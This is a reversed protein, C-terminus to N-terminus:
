ITKPDFYLVWRLGVEIVSFLTWVFVVADLHTGNCTPLLVAISFIALYVWYFLQFLWFKTRPASWLYYVKRWFPLTKTRKAYRSIPRVARKVPVNLTLPDSKKGSKLRAELLSLEELKQLTAQSKDSNSPSSVDFPDLSGLSTILYYFSSECINMVIRYLLLQFWFYWECEM